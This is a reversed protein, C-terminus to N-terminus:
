CSYDDLSNVEAPTLPRYEFTGDEMLRRYCLAGNRKAVFMADWEGVPPGFLRANLLRYQRVVSDLWKSRCGFLTLTM